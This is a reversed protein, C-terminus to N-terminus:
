AKISTTAMYSLLHMTEDSVPAVEGYATRLNKYLLRLPGKLMALDAKMALGHELALAGAWTLCRHLHSSKLAVAALFAATPALYKHPLGRAVIPIAEAPIAMWVDETLAPIALRLAFVFAKLYHREETLIAQVRVPTVDVELDFPDFRLNDDLSYIVMGDQTLAAFSRGTSAMAVALGEPAERDDRTSAASKAQYRDRREKGALPFRRLLIRSFADYICVFPFKGSTILETGDPSYALSTITAPALPKWAIDRRADITAVITGLAVDITVIEGKLTAASVHHGDPRFALALVDSGLTFSETAKDRAFPDCIRLTGDWSSSALKQGTADFALGSIPGRHGGIVELLRGTQLSWLFVEFTDLTGAAVVEGSPDIALASFQVPTPTVLTRFPRFRLTDYARITGDNSASLLVKSAASGSRAGAGGAFAVATVAARHEAFTAFSLGSTGSWLKVKGDGSGTAITQGDSAYALSTMRAGHSQQKMVFSESRWEWVVLQGRDGCAFAIWDSGPSLAVASISCQTIGLSYVLALHPAGATSGNVNAISYLGFTGNSFAVVLLSQAHSFSIASVRTRREDSEKADEKKGHSGEEAAADAEQEYKSISLPHRSRVRGCDPLAAHLGDFAWTLLTGNRGITIITDDLERPLSGDEKTTADDDRSPSPAPSLRAFYAGVLGHRHAILELPVFSPNITDKELDYIRATADESATLLFRGTSSWALSVVAATHGAVTKELALPAFERTEGSPARWIRVRFNDQGYAIALRRGRPDFALDSVAAGFAFHHLTTRTRVNVMVGHGDGDVAVLLAGSPSLAIRTVPSRLQFPFTASSGDLLNFLSVRHGVPSYLTNGDPSYVVNGQKYVVGCLNSFRFNLRMPSTATRPAEEAIAGPRAPARGQCAKARRRHPPPSPAGAAGRTRAADIHGQAADASPHRVQRNEKIGEVERVSKIARSEM